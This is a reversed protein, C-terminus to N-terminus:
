RWLLGGKGNLALNPNITKNAIRLDFQLLTSSKGIVDGTKVQQGQQVSIEKLHYLYSKLGGGHEIVVIGKTLDLMGAYVVTGSATAVVPKDQHCKYTIGINRSIKNGQVIQEFNGYDSLVVGDNPQEIPSQFIGTWESETSATEFLPFITQQYQQVAQETGQLTDTELTVKKFPNYLVKVFFEKNHGGTQVRISYEKDPQNYPVAFYLMVKGYRNVPKTCVLESEIQIQTDQPLGSISVAVVDGQYVTDASISIESKLDLRFRFQYFYEGTPKAKEPPYIVRFTAQYEGNHTFMFQEFEKVTGDFINEGQQNAIALRTQAQADIKESLKLTPQEQLTGLDQVTLDQPQLFEKHIIGGLIPISWQYGNTQLPIDAFSYESPPLSQEKTQSYFFLTVSGVLIIVMCFVMFLWLFLKGFAKAIKKLITM